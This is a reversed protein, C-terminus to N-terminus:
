NPFLHGGLYVTIQSEYGYHVAPDSIVGIKIKKGKGKPVASKTIMIKATVSSFFIFTGVPITGNYIPSPNDAIWKLKANFAPHATLGALSKEGYTQFFNSKM